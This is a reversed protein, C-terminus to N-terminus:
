GGSGTEQLGQPEAPTPRPVQETEHAAWRFQRHIRSFAVAIGARELWCNTELLEAPLFELSPTAQRQPESRGCTDYVGLLDTTM